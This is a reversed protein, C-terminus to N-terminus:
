LRGYTRSDSRYSEKCKKGWRSLTECTMDVRRKHDMDSVIKPRETPKFTPLSTPLGSREGVHGPVKQLVGNLPEM